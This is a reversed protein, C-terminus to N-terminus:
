EGKYEEILYEITIELEENSFFLLEFNTIGYHINVLPILCASLEDVLSDSIDIGEEILRYNIYNIKHRAMLYSILSVIITAIYLKLIM